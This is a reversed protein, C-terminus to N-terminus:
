GLLEIARKAEEQTAIVLTQNVTQPTSSKDDWGHLSKLAFIDGVKGSKYLREETQAEHMLEAKQIIDSLPILLIKNEGELLCPNENEDLFVCDNALIDEYALGNIDLYEYLRWDYEGDRMRYYIQRDVGLALVMGARTIPEENDKCNQIYGFLRDHLGAASEQKITRSDRKKQVFNKYAEIDKAYQKSFATIKNANRKSDTRNGKRYDNPSSGDKYQNVALSMEKRGQVDKSMQETAFSM